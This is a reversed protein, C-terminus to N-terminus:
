LSLKREVKSNIAEGLLHILSLDYVCRACGTDLAFLFTNGKLEVPLLLFAGGKPIEFRELPAESISGKSPPDGRVAVTEVALAVVLCSICTRSLARM